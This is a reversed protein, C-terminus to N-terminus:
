KRQNALPTRFREPVPNSWALIVGLPGLLCGLLLGTRWRRGRRRAGEIGLFGCVYALYLVPSIPTCPIDYRAVAFIIALPIMAVMIHWIRLRQMSEVNKKVYDGGGSVRGSGHARRATRGIVM